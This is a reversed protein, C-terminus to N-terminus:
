SYLWQNESCNKSKTPLLKSHSIVSTKEPSGQFGGSPGCAIHVRYEETLSPDPNKNCRWEREPPIKDQDCIQNRSSTDYAVHRLFAFMHMVPQLRRAREGSPM